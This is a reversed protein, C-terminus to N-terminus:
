ADRKVHAVIVARDCNNPNRVVNGAFHEVRKDPYRVVLDFRDDRPPHEVLIARFFNVLAIEPVFSM